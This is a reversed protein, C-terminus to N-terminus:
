WTASNQRLVQSGCPRSPAVNRNASNTAGRGPKLTGPALTSTVLKRTPITDRRPHRAATTTTFVHTGSPNLLWPVYKFRCAGLFQAHTLTAGCALMQPRAQANNNGTNYVSFSKKCNKCGWAATAAGCRRQRCIDAGRRLGPGFASTKYTAQAWTTRQVRSCCIHCTRSNHGFALLALLSVAAAALPAPAFLRPVAPPLPASKWASCARFPQFM